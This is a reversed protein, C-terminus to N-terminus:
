WKRQDVRRHPPQRRKPLRHAEKKAAPDYVAALNSAVLPPKTDFPKTILDEGRSSSSWGISFETIRPKEETGTMCYMYGQGEAVITTM